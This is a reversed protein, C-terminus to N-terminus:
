PENIINCSFCKRAMVFMTKIRLLNQTNKIFNFSNTKVKKNIFYRLILLICKKKNTTGVPIKETHKKTSNLFVIKTNTIPSILYTLVFYNNLMTNTEVEHASQDYM